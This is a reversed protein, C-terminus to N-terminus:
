VPFPPTARLALVPKHPGGILLHRSRVLGPVWILQGEIELVPWGQRRSPSVLADTFVDGVSKSGKMGLPEIRDGPRWARLLLTRGRDPPAPGGRGASLGEEDFFASWPDGFARRAERETTRAPRLEWRGFFVPGEEPDIRVPSPEPERAAQGSCARVRGAEVLLYDGGGLDLRGGGPKALLRAVGAALDPSVAVPRGLEAEALRRLMRRRVAPHQRDLQAGDLGAGPEARGKSAAAALEMLASEDEALEDRTRIVNLAAAPNVAELAPIVDLRIRNRAYSRDQNTQDDAFPFHGELMVRIPQRELELLPRIVRGSRPPMALLSRTGPSSALRYLFTEAQDSRNHGVAIWDYGREARIREAERLRVQRAWDQLNGEVPGARHVQCEVRLRRCLRRVLEEDAGAQDRLGYNVHLAVLRDPGSVRALGALLAVSDAGGSVLVVGTEGDKVLGSREIAGVIM